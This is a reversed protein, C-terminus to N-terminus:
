SPFGQKLQTNIAYIEGLLDDLSVDNHKDRRKLRKSMKEIREPLKKKV